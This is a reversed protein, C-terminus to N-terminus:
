KGYSKLTKLENDLWTEHERIIREYNSVSHYDQSIKTQSSNVMCAPADTPWGWNMWFESLKILGYVPEQDLHYLTDELAFARWIRQAQQIDASETKCLKHLLSCLDSAPLDSDTALDSVVNLLPNEIGMKELELTAFDEICSSPLKGLSRSIGCVAEFIIIWSALGSQLIREFIKQM